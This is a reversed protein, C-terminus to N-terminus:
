RRFARFLAPPRVQEEHAFHWYNKEDSGSDRCLVGGQLVESSVTVAKDRLLVGQAASGCVADEPLGRQERMASLLPTGTVILVADIGVDDYAHFQPAGTADRLFHCPPKPSLVTTTAGDILVCQGDRDVISLEHSLVSPCCSGTHAPKSPTAVCSETLCHGCPVTPAQNRLPRLM